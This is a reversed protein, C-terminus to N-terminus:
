QFGGKKDFPRNANLVGMPATRSFSRLGHALKLQGAKAPGEDRAMAADCFGKLNCKEFAAHQRGHRSQSAFLM